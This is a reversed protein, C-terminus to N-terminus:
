YCNHKKREYENSRDLSACYFFDQAHETYGNLRWQSSPVFANQERYLDYQTRTPTNACSIITLLLIFISLTKM